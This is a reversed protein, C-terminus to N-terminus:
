DRDHAVHILNVGEWVIEMLYININDECKGRSRGLPKNGEPEGIFIICANRKRAM